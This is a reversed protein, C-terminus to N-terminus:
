KHSMTSSPATTNIYSSPSNEYLSSSASSSSSSSINMKNSGSGSNSRVINLEKSLLNQNRENLSQVNVYSYNPIETSM